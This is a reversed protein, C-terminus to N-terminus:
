RGGRGGGGRHPLLANPHQHDLPRHRPRLVRYHAPCRRSAARRRSARHIQMAEDSSGEDAAGNASRVNHFTPRPGANSRRSTPRGSSRGGSIARRRTTPMSRRRRRSNGRRFSWASTESAAKRPPTHDPPPSPRPAYLTARGPQPAGEPGCLGHLVPFHLRPTVAEDVTPVDPAPFFRQKAMVAFVRFKGARYNALTQGAELCSLDVQGAILDQMVPAAGRYPVYQFRTGTADQFYVMC